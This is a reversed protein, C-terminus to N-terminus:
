GIRAGRTLKFIKSNSLGSAPNAATTELDQAQIYRLKSIDEM